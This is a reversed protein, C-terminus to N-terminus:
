QGAERPESTAPDSAGAGAEPAADETLEADKEPAQVLANKTVLQDDRVLDGCAIAKRYFVTNPVEVADDIRAFRKDASVRKNSVVITGCPIVHHAEEDPEAPRYGVYGRESGELPCVRGPVVRVKIKEPM